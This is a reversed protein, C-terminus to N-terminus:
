WLLQMALREGLGKKTHRLHYLRRREDAYAKGKGKETLYTGYDGYGVAGVSHLFHGDRYVDLKKGAHISPQVQFGLKRARDKTYQTIHYM